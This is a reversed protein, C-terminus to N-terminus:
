TEVTDKFFEELVASDIRGNVSTVTYYPNYSLPGEVFVEYKEQQFVAPRALSAPQTWRGGSSGVTKAHNKYGTTKLIEALQDLAFKSPATTNDLTHDFQYGDLDRESPDVSDTTAFREVRMCIVSDGLVKRLADIESRYRLDPIVYASGSSMKAITREVWYNTTVSRKCSGELILLARPTWFLKQPTDRGDVVGWVQPTPELGRTASVPSAGDETKFERVMFKAIMLSFDDRPDVPYQHLPMEKKNQDYMDALPVGYQEATMEKLTDAFAHRQFGYEKVLFEAMFDKGSKKWGSLAIVISPKNTTM